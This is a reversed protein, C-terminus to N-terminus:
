CYFQALVRYDYCRDETPHSSSVTISDSGDQFTIDGDPGAAKIHVELGETTTFRIQNFKTVAAIGRTDSIIIKAQGESTFGMGKFHFNMLIVNYVDTM